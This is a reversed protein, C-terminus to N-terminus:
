IGKRDCYFGFYSIFAFCLMPVLFAMQINGNNIDSVYGMLPPIVAGGSIAMVVLSGGFQTDNGLGKISLGFNTPWCPAMCFNVVMIAMVAVMSGNVAMFTMLIVNLACCIGMVKAPTIFKMMGTTIVKGVAYCFTSAILWKAAYYETVEPMVSQVFRITFTWVGIQAGVYLFQSLVGMRFHPITMLRKISEITNTQTAQAAEPKCKPFKVAIFIFAVVVLLSGMVIYPILVQSLMEHRMADAVQPAMANLEAITPDNAGLVLQQGIFYGGVVGVSNFIQSFNIRQTSTEIPGLLSSYTNCSTELFSLGAAIVGLCALFAGYTMVETAPIFLFCGAGYLILGIIIATKYSFKKVVMAAPIALAFYGFYFVSQVLASQMDSLQFGKRFQAILIENLSGAIGWLTFITCVMIFQVWPIRKLYCSLDMSRDKDVVPKDYGAEISIDTSM